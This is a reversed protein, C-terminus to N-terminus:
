YHAESDELGFHLGAIDVGGASNKRERLDPLTPDDSINEPQSGFGNPWDDGFDQRWGNAEVFIKWLDVAPGAEDTASFCVREPRVTLWALFSMIAQAPTIAPPMDEAVAIANIFYPHETIEYGITNVLFDRAYHLSSVSHIDGITLLNTFWGWAWGPDDQMSKRLVGNAWFITDNQEAAELVELVEMLPRPARAMENYALDDANLVDSAAIAMKRLDENTEPSYGIKYAAETVLIHAEGLVMGKKLIAFNDKRNFAYWLGADDVAITMYPAGPRVKTITALSIARMQQPLQLSQAQQM